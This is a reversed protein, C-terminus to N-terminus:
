RLWGDSQRAAPALWVAALDPHAYIVRVAFDHM